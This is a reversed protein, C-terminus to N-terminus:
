KMRTLRVLMLVLGPFGKILLNARASNSANKFLSLGFSILEWFTLRASLFGHWHFASLDFFAAFFERTEQALFYLLSLHHHVVYLWKDAALRTIISTEPM